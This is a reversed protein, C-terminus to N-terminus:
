NISGSLSIAIPMYMNRYTGTINSAEGRSNTTEIVVTGKNGIDNESPTISVFRIDKFVETLGLSDFYARTSNTLEINITQGQDITGFLEYPTAWLVINSSVLMNDNQEVTFYGMLFPKDGGGGALAEEVGGELNNLLDATITEGCSWEHRTYAM